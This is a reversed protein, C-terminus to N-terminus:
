KHILLHLLSYPVQGDIINVINTGTTNSGGKRLAALEAELEANRKRLVAIESYEDASPIYFGPPTVGM